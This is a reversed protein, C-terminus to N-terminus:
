GAMPHQQSACNFKAGGADWADNAAQGFGSRCKFKLGWEPERLLEDQPNLAIVAATPAADDPASFFPDADM